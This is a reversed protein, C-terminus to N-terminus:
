HMPDRVDPTFKKSGLRFRTSLEYNWLCPSHTSLGVVASLGPILLSAAVPFTSAMPCGAWPFSRYCTLSLGKGDTNTNSDITPITLRHTFGLLGVICCTRWVDTCRRVLTCKANGELKVTHILCRMRVAILLCPITRDRADPMNWFCSTNM